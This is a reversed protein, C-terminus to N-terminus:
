KSSPLAGIYIKWSLAPPGQRSGAPMSYQKSLIEMLSYNARAEAHCTLLM